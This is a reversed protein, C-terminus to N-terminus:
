EPVRDVRRHELPYVVPEDIRTQRLKALRRPWILSLCVAGFGVPIAVFGVREDSPRELTVWSVLAAPTGFLLAMTVLKTYIQSVRLRTSCSPCSIGVRGVLISYRSTPAVEWLKSLPVRIGCVPCQPWPPFPM